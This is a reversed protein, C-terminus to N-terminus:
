SSWNLSITAALFWADVFFIELVVPWIWSSRSIQSRLFWSKLFVHQLWGEHVHFAFVLLLSVNCAFERIHDFVNQLWLLGM